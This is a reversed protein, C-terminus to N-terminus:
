QALGLEGEREEISEEVTALDLMRQLLLQQYEAQEMDDRALRLTDIDSSIADREAVLEQLRADDSDPKSGGLRSLSFRDTRKGEIRAHETALQGNVEFYNEVERQGFDFAERASVIGNKDIDAGQNSLAAMFYAGFRTAHRESGSRTATIVVRDEAAWIEAAGGSASSTNILVQNTAPLADLAAAIDTDTLDPGPLNFKYEHDDFSGHGILYVGLQDDSGLNATLENFHTIIADRAADGARFVRIREDSTISEAAAQAAEVQEAFQLTYGEEGGLGEVIVVHMAAQATAALVLSCLCCCLLYLPRTMNNALTPPVAM